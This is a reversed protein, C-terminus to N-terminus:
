RCTSLRRIGKALGSITGHRQIQQITYESCTPSHKCYSKYGMMSIVMWDLGSQIIQFMRVFFIAINKMIVILYKSLSGLYM